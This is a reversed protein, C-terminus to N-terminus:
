SVAGTAMVRMRRIEFIVKLSVPLIDACEAMLQWHGAVAVLNAVERAEFQRIIERERGVTPDHAQGAVVRMTSDAWFEGATFATIVTM